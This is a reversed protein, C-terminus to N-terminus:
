PSSPPPAGRPRRSPPTEEGLGLQAAQAGYPQALGIRARMKALKSAAREGV